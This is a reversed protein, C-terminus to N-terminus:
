RTVPIIASLPEAGEVKIHLLNSPNFERAFKALARRLAELDGKLQYSQEPHRHDFVVIFLRNGLHKRGEQSQNRYLWTALLEPNDFGTQPLARFRYPLVCCKLDFAIGQITLDTLKAFRDFWPEIGPQECMVTEQVCSAWYNYWRTYAYGQLTPQGSLRNAVVADVSDLRPEHFIFRTAADSGNCQVRGWHYPRGREGHLRLQSSVFALQQPTLRV